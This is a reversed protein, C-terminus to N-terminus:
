QFLSLQIRMNRNAMRLLIRLDNENLKEKIYLIKENEVYEIKSRLYPKEILLEELVNM